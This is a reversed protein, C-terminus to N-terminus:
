KGFILMVIGAVFIMGIFYLYPLFKKKQHKKNLEDLVDSIDDPSINYKTYALQSVVRQYKIKNKNPIMSAINLLIFSLPITIVSIIIKMTNNLPAIMTQSMALIGFGLSIGAIAMLLLSKNIGFDYPIQSAENYLERKKFVIPDQIEYRPAGCNPCVDVNDAYNFGCSNCTM